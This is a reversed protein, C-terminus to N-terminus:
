GNELVSGEAELEATTRAIFAAAERMRIKMRGTEMDDARQELEEELNRGWTEGWTDAEEWGLVEDREEERREM